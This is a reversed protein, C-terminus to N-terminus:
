SKVFAFLQAWFVEMNQIIGTYKQQIIEGANRNERLRICFFIYSKVQQFTELFKKDDNRAFIVSLLILPFDFSADLIINTARPASLM